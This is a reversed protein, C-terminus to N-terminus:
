LLNNNRKTQNKHLNKLRKESSPRRWETTTTTPLQWNFTTLVWSESGRVQLKNGPNSNSSAVHQQQQKQHQQQQPSVPFKQHIFPPSKLHNTLPKELHDSTYYIYKDSFKILSILHFVWDVQKSILSLSQLLNTVGGM